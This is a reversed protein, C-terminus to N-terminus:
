PNLNTLLQIAFRRFSLPGLFLRFDRIQGPFQISEPNEKQM